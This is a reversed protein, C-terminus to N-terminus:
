AAKIGDDMPPHGKCLTVFQPNEKIKEEVNFTTKVIPSLNKIGKAQGRQLKNSM